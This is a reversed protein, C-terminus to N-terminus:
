KKDELMTLLYEVQWQREAAAHADDRIKKLDEITLDNMM